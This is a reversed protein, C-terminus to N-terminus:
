HAASMQLKQSSSGRSHRSGKWGLRSWETVNKVQAMVMEAQWERALLIRHKSMLNTLPALHEQQDAGPQGWSVGTYRVDRGVTMSAIVKKVQCRQGCDHICDSEEGGGKEEGEQWQQAGGEARLNGRLVPPLLSCHVGGGPHNKCWSGLSSPPPLSCSYARSKLYSLHCLPFTFVFILSISTQFAM